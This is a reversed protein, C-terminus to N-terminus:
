VTAGAARGRRRRTVGSTRIALVFILLTFSAWLYFKSETYAWERVEEITGLTKSQGDKTLAVVEGELIRDGMAM